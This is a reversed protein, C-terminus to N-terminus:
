NQPVPPSRDTRNPIMSPRQIVVVDVIRSDRRMLAGRVTAYSEPRPTDSDDYVYVVMHSFRGEPEFYLSLDDAIQAELANLDGRNRVVKVEVILRLSPIAFDFRGQRLGLGRLYQEDELDNRFYPSLVALLFAQVDAEKDILWRAPAVGKRTPNAEWRWRRFSGQTARLIEAVRNSDPVAAAALGDTLVALGVLAVAARLVDAEGPPRDALLSAFLRRRREVDPHSVHRLVHPWAQWLCLDLAAVYPDDSQALRTGFRGEDDLLDGALLRARALRPDSPGHRELMEATWRKAAAFRADNGTGASVARLGDAVGLLALTDHAFDAQRAAPRSRQQDIGRLFSGTMEPALTAPDRRALAFGARALAPYGHFRAADLQDDLRDAAHTAPHDDHDGCHPLVRFVFGQVHAPAEHINKSLIRRLLAQRDALVDGQAM